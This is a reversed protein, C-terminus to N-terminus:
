CKGIIVVCRVPWRAKKQSEQGNQPRTISWFAPASRRLQRYSSTEPPSSTRVPLPRIRL